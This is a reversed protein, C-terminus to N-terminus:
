KKQISMMKMLKEHSYVIYDFGFENFFLRKNGLGLKDEFDEIIFEKEGVQALKLNNNNFSIFVQQDQSFVKSGYDYNGIINENLTFKKENLKLLYECTKINWQIIEKESKEITKKELEEKYFLYKAHTVADKEQTSVNPRVVADEDRKGFSTPIFCLFGDLLPMSSGPNGGGKTKEGVIIAKKNKQMSNAFGEAASFTASSTLIYVPKNLYRKGNVFPLVKYKETKSVSDYYIENEEPYFYTELIEGVRGDGGNNKRLDIILANTSEVMNMASAIKQAVEEGIFNSFITIEIYGIQGELIDVKTFGFNIKKHSQYEFEKKTNEDKSYSKFKNEDLYIKLHNDKSKELLITNIFSTFHTASCEDKIQTKLVELTDSISKAIAENFYFKRIETSLKSAVAKQNEVSLTPQAFSISAILMFTLAIIKKM